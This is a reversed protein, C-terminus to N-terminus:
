VTSAYRTRVILIALLSRPGLSEPFNGTLQSLPVLIALTTVAANRDYDTTLTQGTRTEHQTAAHAIKSTANHTPGRNKHVRIVSKKKKHM